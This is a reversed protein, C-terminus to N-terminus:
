FNPGSTGSSASPMIGKLSSFCPAPSINEVEESLIIVDCQRKTYGVKDEGPSCAMTCPTGKTETKMQIFSVEDEHMNAKCGVRCTSYTAKLPFISALLVLFGLQHLLAYLAM